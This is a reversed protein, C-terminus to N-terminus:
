HNSFMILKDKETLEVKKSSQNGCFLVMKEGPKIYGLPITPNRKEKPLSPDVSAEYLKRIFEEVTCPGPVEEFFRSVKKVYIEKSTYDDSEESDYMLIDNYFEYLDEKEGIQTIMKSIYRNSIVVNNISYSSIIDHHKPNIIEVIVDMSSEDFDPNEIKKKRIIDQVYVLNALANADIEDNSAADDSLILISTDEEHEEVFEEIKSCIIDKDYVEAVVTEIVFPYERYYSVKELNEKSDIVVIRLIEGEGNKYNWENRFSRFGEMIEKCHSNHGLIVINKQEMWYDHNLKVEYDSKLIYGNKQVHKESKAVYYAHRKGSQEMITLPIAHKHEKLYKRIFEDEDECDTLHSYFTAGRNSFLEEYALNLEPMLSFQSLIQGLVQNIHLPVINCKGEVQKYQIIKEVVESTWEDTIEVIIKQDDNSYEASTIDAVQMLTKITQSNGKAQTEIKERKEYQCIGSSMENGLIIVTKAKELCVDKLQRASYVDGERIIVTVNNKFWHKREYAIKEWFPLGKCRERLSSNERAITDSLREAIEKEIENKGKKVLVVVKQNMKCYLLDNVIESARTNWNLIVVHDSIELKRRGANSHQIFESISNTTYGIVAGTFSIMGVIVTILCFVSVAVGAAGIDAIVYQICGPDLIMTLTCFAAEFFHMKETGSMSFSSIVLASSIVFLINFFIIAGLITRRPRKAVQMSLWEKIKQKM